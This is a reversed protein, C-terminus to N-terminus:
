VPDASQPENQESEEESDDTGPAKGAQTDTNTDVENNEPRQPALPNFLGSHQSALSSLLQELEKDKQHAQQALKDAEQNAAAIEALLKDREEAKKKRYAEKAAASSFASIKDNEDISRGSIQGGNRRGRMRDRLIDRALKQIEAHSSHYDPVDAFASYVFLTVVSLFLLSRRM